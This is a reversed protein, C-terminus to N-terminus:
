KGFTALVAGTPDQIIAFRGVHPIEMPGKLVKGGLEEIKKANADIDDVAVYAMFHPPPVPGEGFWKPDTEYLGGVPHDGGTSFEHYAPSNETATGDKFIWGFVAKYFAKCKEADDPSVAIETWVFTGEQPKPFGAMESAQEAM